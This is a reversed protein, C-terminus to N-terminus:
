YELLKFLFQSTNICFHQKLIYAKGLIQALYSQLLLMMYSVVFSFACTLLMFWRSAAHKAYRHGSGPAAIMRIRNNPDRSIPVEIRASNPSPIGCTLSLYVRSITHLKFQEALQAHSHEDQWCPSELTLRLVLKICILSIKSLIAFILLKM